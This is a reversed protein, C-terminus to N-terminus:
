LLKPTPNAPNYHRTWQQIQKYDTQNTNITQLSQMIWAHLQQTGTSPAHAKWYDHHASLKIHPENKEGFVANATCLQTCMWWAGLGNCEWGVGGWIWHGQAGGAAAAKLGVAGGASVETELSDVGQIGEFISSWQLQDDVNIWSTFGHTEAM